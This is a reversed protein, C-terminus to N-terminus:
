WTLKSWGDQPGRTPGNDYCYDQLAFLECLLETREQETYATSNAVTNINRDLMTYTGASVAGTSALVQLPDGGEAWESAIRRADTDTLPTFDLIHRAM